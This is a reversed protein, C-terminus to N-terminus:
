WEREGDVTMGKGQFITHCDFTRGRTAKKEQVAAELLIKVISLRWFLCKTTRSHHKIHLPHPSDTSWRRRWQGMADSIHLIIKQKNTNTPHHRLPYHIQQITPRAIEPLMTINNNPPNHRMTQHPTNPSLLIRSAKLIM